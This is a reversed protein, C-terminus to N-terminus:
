CNETEAERCLRSQDIPMQPSHLITLCGCTSLFLQLDIRKFGGSTRFFRYSSRVFQRLCFEGAARSQKMMAEWDALHKLDETKPKPPLFTPRTKSIVKDLASPGVSRTHRHGGPKPLESQSFNPLSAMSNPTPISESATTSPTHGPSGSSLVARVSDSPADEASRRYGTQPAPDPVSRSQSQHNQFTHSTPTSTPPPVYTGHNNNSPSPLSPSLVPRPSPTRAEDRDLTHQDSPESLAAGLEEVRPKGSQSLDIHVTHYLSEDVEEVDVVEVEGEEAGEESPELSIETSEIDHFSDSLSIRSFNALSEMGSTGDQSDQRYGHGRSYSTSRSWEAPARGPVHAPSANIDLTSVSADPDEVKASGDLDHNPNLSPVGAGANGEDDENHDNDTALTRALAARIAEPNFELAVDLVGDDESFADDLSFGHSKSHSATTRVGVNDDDVDWM